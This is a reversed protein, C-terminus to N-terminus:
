PLPHSCTEWRKRWCEWRSEFEVGGGGRGGGSNAFRAALLDALSDAARKARSPPRSYRLNACFLAQPTLQTTIMGNQM